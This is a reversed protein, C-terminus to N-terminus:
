AAVEPSTPRLSGRAALARFREVTPLRVYFTSGAGPESEVWIEGRHLEVLDRTIALGLGSGGFRRTGGGEAQVFREFIRVTDAQSIGIGEDAVSFLFGDAERVAAVTVAGKGESFKIANGVLNILVQGLKLADGWVVCASPLPQLQLTVGQLGAYGAMPEIRSHLLADVDVEAMHMQMQGAELRSVDLIDNIVELLHSGSREIQDLYRLSRKPQGQYLHEHGAVLQCAGCEPCADDVRPSEGPDLEFTCECATCHAVHSMVFDERLGGPINIISNLPTRLEHSVGALFESKARRAQQARDLAVELEAVNDNLKGNLRQLDARMVNIRDALGLSLLIAELSAGIQTTFETFFNSPLVGITKLLYLLIGVLFVGWATMYFYAARSKRLVMRTGALMTLVIMITGLGVTMRLSYEYPLFGALLTAAATGWVGVRMARDLGPLHTHLQLFHRQFQVGTVFGLGIAIPLCRNAWEVSHPWLYQFSLGNLTFQVLAYSLTYTVYFLYAANRVSLLIFLNYLSIAIMVGYFMWLAPQEASLHAVFGDPTRAILPVILSGKTAARLYYVRRGPPEELRFVVNRYPVDRSDFDHRDGTARRKFGGGARPVYLDVYDVHPYAYELLWTVPAPGDNDVAFRVWVASRTMGFSPAAETAPSFTVGAEGAAVQAITFAGTVDEFVEISEALPQQEYDGRASWAQPQAAAPAITAVMTLTIGALACATALQSPSAAGPPSAAVGGRRRFRQGGKPFAPNPM